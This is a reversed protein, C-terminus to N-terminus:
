FAGVSGQEVDDSREVFIGLARQWFVEFFPIRFHLFCGPDFIQFQMTTHTASIDEEWAVFSLM